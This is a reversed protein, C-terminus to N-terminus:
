VRDLRAMLCLDRLIVCRADVQYSLPKCARIIHCLITKRASDSVGPVPVIGRTLRDARTSTHICMTCMAHRTARISEVASFELM